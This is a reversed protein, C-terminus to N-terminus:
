HPSHAPHLAFLVASCRVKGAAAVCNLARTIKNLLAREARQEQQPTKQGQKLPEPPPEDRNALESARTVRHVEQDSVLKLDFGHDRITQMMAQPSTTMYLAPPRPPPRARALQLSLSPSLRVVAKKPLKFRDHFTAPILEFNEADEKSLEKARTRHGHFLLCYDYNYGYRAFFDDDSLPASLEQVADIM